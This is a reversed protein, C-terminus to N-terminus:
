YTQNFENETNVIEAEAENKQQLSNRQQKRILLIGCFWLGIDGMIFFAYVLITMGPSLYDTVMLLWDFLGHAVMALLLGLIIYGGRKEPHFKAMSLFYGLIVGFLFHGPVSLVARLFSTVFGGALSVMSADIVYMFNELCAFGLSIFCAYVIGDFYEDFHKDRWIFIMFILFKSLEEPVGATLFADYFVTDSLIPIRGITMDILFDLVMTFIIALMGGFFAKLLKKIPEKQYKDQFYVFMALLFVPLITLGLLSGIIM